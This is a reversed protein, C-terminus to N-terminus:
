RCMDLLQRCDGQRAALKRVILLVLQKSFPQISQLEEVFRSKLFSDNIYQSEVQHIADQRALDLRQKLISQLADASYADFVVTEIRFLDMGSKHLSTPPDSLM